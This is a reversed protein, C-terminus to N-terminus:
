AVDFVCLSRFRLAKEEETDGGAEEGAEERKRRWIIPALIHIGKEGKKM